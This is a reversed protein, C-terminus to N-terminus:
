HYSFRTLLIITLLIQPNVDKNKPPLNLITKVDRLGSFPIGFHSVSLNARYTMSQPLYRVKVVYTEYRLLSLGAVTAVAPAPKLDLIRRHNGEPRAERVPWRPPFEMGLLSWFNRLIPKGKSSISFPSAFAFCWPIDKEAKM